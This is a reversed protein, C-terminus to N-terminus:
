AIRCRRKGSAEPQCATAARHDRHFAGAGMTSALNAIKPKGQTLALAQDVHAELESVDYGAEVVRRNFAVHERTHNIEQKVFARIENSLREPTGERFAKVSEVFFAEGKPFTVSLANYFATGIPDGGMWWRRMKSDRGFRRDRVVLELDAPTHQRELPASTVADSTSFSQSANMAPDM